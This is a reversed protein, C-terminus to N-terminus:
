PQGLLAGPVSIIKYSVEHEKLVRICGAELADLVTANWETRIIVICADKTLQIGTTNSINPSNVSM